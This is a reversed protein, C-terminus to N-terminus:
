VRCPYSSKIEEVAVLDLKLLESGLQVVELHALEGLCCNRLEASTPGLIQRKLQDEHIVIQAHLTVVRADLANKVVQELFSDAISLWM